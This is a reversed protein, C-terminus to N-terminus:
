SGDRADNARHKLDSSIDSSGADPSNKNSKGDGLCREEDPEQVRSRDSKPSGVPLLAVAPKARLTVPGINFIRSFIVIDFMIIAFSTYSISKWYIFARV